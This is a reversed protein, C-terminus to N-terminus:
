WQDTRKWDPVDLFNYHFVRRKSSTNGTSFHPYELWSHENVLNYYTFALVSIKKPALSPDVITAVSMVLGGFDFPGKNTLPQKKKPGVM